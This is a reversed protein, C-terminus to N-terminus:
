EEDEEFLIERIKTALLDSTKIAQQLPEDPYLSKAAQECSQIIQDATM